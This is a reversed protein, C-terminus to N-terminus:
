AYAAHSNSIALQLSAYRQCYCIHGLERMPRADDRLQRSARYAAGLRFYHFRFHVHFHMHERSSAAARRRRGAHTAYLERRPIMAGEQPADIGFRRPRGLISARICGAIHPSICTVGGAVIDILGGTSEIIYPSIADHSYAHLACPTTTASFHLSCAPEFHGM